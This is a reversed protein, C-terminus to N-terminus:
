ALDELLAGLLTKLDERCSPLSSINNTGFYVLKRMYAKLDETEKAVMVIDLIAEAEKESIKSANLLALISDKKTQDMLAFLIPIPLIENKVRNALESPEYLDIFEDRLTLLLGLAFGYKGLLKVVSPTGDGLIAGIKATAQAVATKKRLLKLYKKGDLDMKGRFVTEDAEASSLDFFARKVLILIAQKKEESFGKVAEHLLYVGEILMADGALVAIDKGFKGYVTLESNKLVSQDIIDDHIDAAAVLLVMAAGVQTTEEPKGGVAECYLSLLGPHLIKTWTTDIFYNLAQKLPVHSIKQQLVVIKSIELANQGRQRLNDAVQQVIKKNTM